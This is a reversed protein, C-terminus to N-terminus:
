LSVVFLSFSHLLLTFAVLQFRHVLTSIDTAKNNYNFLIEIGYRNMNREKKEVAYLLYM